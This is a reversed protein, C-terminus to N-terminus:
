YSNIADNQQHEVFANACHNGLGRTPRQREEECTLCLEKQDVSTGFCSSVTTRKLRKRNLYLLIETQTVARELVGVFVATYTNCENGVAREKYDCGTRVKPRERSM